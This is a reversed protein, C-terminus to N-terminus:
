LGVAVEDEVVVRVLRGPRRAHGAGEDAGIELYLVVAVEDDVVVAACRDPGAAGGSWSAWWRHDPQALSVPRPAAPRGHPRGRRTRREGARRDGAPRRGAGAAPRPHVTRQTRRH